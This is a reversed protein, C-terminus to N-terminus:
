RLDAPTVETRDFGGLRYVLWSLLWAVAFLGVIGFGLAGFKDNVTGIWAWFTGQLDLKGGIINLAELMGVVLAVAVSVLTITLNYFLKRM